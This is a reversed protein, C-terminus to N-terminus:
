DSTLRTVDARLRIAADLKDIEADSLGDYIRWWDPVCDATGEAPINSTPQDPSQVGLVLQQEERLSEGAGLEFARREDDGLDSGHPIFHAM